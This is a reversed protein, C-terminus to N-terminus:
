TFPLCFRLDNAARQEREGGVGGRQEVVPASAEDTELQYLVRKAIKATDSLSSLFENGGLAFPCISLPPSYIATKIDLWSM